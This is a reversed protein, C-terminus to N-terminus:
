HPHGDDGDNVEITNKKEEFEQNSVITLQVKATGRRHMGLLKAASNSLDIVRGRKPMRDTVEVYIIRNSSLDKVKLKTGLPLTPHAAVNINNSNFIKGNAMKGGDFGDRGGYYTAIGYMYNQHKKTTKKHKKHAKHSKYSKHAVKPFSAPKKTTDTASVLNITLSLLLFLVIKLM